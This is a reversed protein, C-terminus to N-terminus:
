PLMQLNIWFYFDTKPHKAMGGSTCGSSLAPVTELTPVIYVQEGSQKLIVSLTQRKGCQLFPM